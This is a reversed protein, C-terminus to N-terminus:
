GRAPPAISASRTAAPLSALQERAIGAVRDFAARDRAALPAASFRSTLKLPDTPENNLRVEFHLHPGTTVGTQGVAGLQQGESVHSGVRLGSSFASLHAYYTTYGQAHRLVVHKGYGSGDAGIFQVTGACAAVVPTGVHATLDVGTHFLHEGTVPHIRYGFPSSIRVYNLPMAFPQAALRAGDFSFYDGDTHGPAVFWVASYTHGALTIEVASVRKRQSATGASGTPGYVIRYGDGSQARTSEDLRGAFIRRLQAILDPPLGAAVWTDHLSGKIQGTYTGVDAPMALSSAASLTGGGVDAISQAGPRTPQVVVRGAWGHIVATATAVGAVHPDCMGPKARCISVLVSEGPSLVFAPKAHLDAEMLPRTQTGGSQVLAGAHPAPVATRNSLFPHAGLMDREVAFGETGASAAQRLTKAAAGSAVPAGLVVMTGGLLVASASAGLPFKRKVHAAHSMDISNVQERALINRLFFWM